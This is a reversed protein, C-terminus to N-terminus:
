WQHSKLILQLCVSNWSAPDHVMRTYLYLFEHSKLLPTRKLIVGQCIRTPRCLSRRNADPGNPSVKRKM